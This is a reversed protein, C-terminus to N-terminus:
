RQRFLQGHSPLVRPMDLELAPVVRSFVVSRQPCSAPVAIRPIAPSCRRQGGNYVEVRRSHIISPDGLARLPIPMCEGKLASSVSPVVDSANRCLGFIVEEIRAEARGYCLVRSTRSAWLLIFPYPQCLLSPQAAPQKATETM